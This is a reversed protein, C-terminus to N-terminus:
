VLKSVTKTHPKFDVCRLVIGTQNALSKTKELVPDSWTDNSAPFEHTEYLVAFNCNIPVPLAPIKSDAVVIANGAEDHGTVVRRPDPFLSM